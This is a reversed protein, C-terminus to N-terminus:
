RGKKKKFQSLDIWNIVHGVTLSEYCGSYKAARRDAVVSSPTFFETEEVEGTVPNWDSILYKEM